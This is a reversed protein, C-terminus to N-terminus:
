MLLPHLLSISRRFLVPTDRFFLITMALDIKELTPVITRPQYIPEIIHVTYAASFVRLKLKIAQSARLTNLFQIRNHIQKSIQKLSPSINCRNQIIPEYLWIEAHHEIPWITALAFKPTVFYTM